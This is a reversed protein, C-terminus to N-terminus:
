LNGESPTLRCGRIVRRQTLRCFRWSREVSSCQAAIAQNLLSQPSTIRSQYELSATLDIPGSTGAELLETKVKDLSSKAKICKEDKCDSFHQVHKRHVIRAHQFLQEALLVTGALEKDLSWRENRTESLVQEPVPRLIDAINTDHFEVGQHIFHEVLRAANRATKKLEAEM